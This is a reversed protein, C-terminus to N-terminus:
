GAHDESARVSNARLSVNDPTINLLRLTGGMIRSFVPAAVQGGYYTGKSPENVLVVLVLRPDSAPAMGAFMAIYKKEYGNEASKRVTGTKGAITYGPVDARSGTGKASVVADLISRVQRVTQPSVVPSQTKLYADPDEFDDKRLMSISTQKGDSALVTYARALQLVTMSMGYGFAMTAHETEHWDHFSKLYGSAEGPFGSETSQGVGISNYTNWLDQRPITFVIKVAGVNSSKLLVDNVSLPGFNRIDRITFRGIKYTGPTTDIVTETSYRKSDLALAVVFPKMTSGPEFVDTVARNRYTHPKYGKRNNPNFSPVNVMAIVEGTRADVMVASASQAGHQLYAAKLERYALYQVRRDISLTVNQGPRPIKVAEVDEVIRNIQDKVVKKAGPQGALWDEYALEIGELGTDDINTFGIVHSSVEATPYYRRYERKLYIGLLESQQLRSTQQPGIHRKIYLFQRNKKQELRQVLDSVKLNLIKAVHEVSELNNLAEAPNAWVSFVPTSVALLQGNRDLIMGRHAPMEVVRLHRAKGEEELFEHEFLQLDVARVFLVGLGFVFVSLVFLRRLSSNPVRKKM